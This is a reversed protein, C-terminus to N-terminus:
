HESPLPPLILMLSSFNKCHERGVARAVREESVRSVSNPTKSVYIDRGLIKWPIKFTNVGVVGLVCVCVCM